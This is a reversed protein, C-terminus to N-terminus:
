KPPPKRRYEISASKIEVNGKLEEAFPKQALTVQKRINQYTGHERAADIFITYEGNEVLKGHDDKGDWILSYKGPARTSQSITQVMDTKDTLRRAQDSRYWRKLDPLWQFPGAGGFSIWLALNRVCAGNKDEVWVAVYPRRYRRGGGDPSNIEFNILLEYEEGWSSGAPAHPKEKEAKDPEDPRPAPSPAQKPVEAFAVPLPRTREFRDWGASRSVRGDTTIILCEVGPVSQALRLSESPELVNCITALADADASRPAIVTASAIAAAALGTRPDFIHSYWKGNIRVGRHYNGSTSVARDQVEVYAVPETTESGARPEAIAILRPESGCVRMEGGVNLLLGRIGRTADLAAECARDVIYGKAIANLILPCDTLREATRGAPDLKWAPPSM